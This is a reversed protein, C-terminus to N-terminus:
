LRMKRYIFQLFTEDTPDSYLLPNGYYVVSAVGAQDAVEKIERAHFGHHNWSGTSTPAGNAPGTNQVWIEPDDSTILDLMDVEQRYTLISASNYEEWSSVGYISFFYDEGFLDVVEAFDPDFEGFVDNLWRGELDLSSQTARLAIGLVRTSERLVPDSSNPEGMEENAALWLATSGGASSGFLLVKEKDINLGSAYSRIYQLARRSDNLCKLVGVTENPVLKRYNISAVAIQNELLATINEPYDKERIFTKDGSNFGGGHIFIVLGTPSSSPPVFIDFTTDPYVDYAVDEAYLANLESYEPPLASTEFPFATYDDASDDPGTDTSEEMQEEEIPSSDPSCSIFFTFCILLPFIRPYTM